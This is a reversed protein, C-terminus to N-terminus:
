TDPVSRHEDATRVRERVRGWRGGNAAYWSKTRPIVLEAEPVFFTGLVSPVSVTGPRFLILFPEPSDSTLVLSPM